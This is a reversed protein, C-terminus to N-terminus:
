SGRTKFIVTVVMARGRVTVVMARGRVTVVMAQGRVTVVKVQEWWAYVFMDPHTSAACHSFHALTRRKTTYFSLYNGYVADVDVPFQGSFLSFAPVCSPMVCRMLKTRDGM